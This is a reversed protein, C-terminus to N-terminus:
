RHKPAANSRTSLPRTEDEDETPVAEWGLAAAGLAPHQVTAREIRIAAIPALVRARFSAEARPLLWDGAATMMGGGLAIVSPNYATASWALAVGLMDGAENLIRSALPDGTYAARIIASTNLADDMLSTQDGCEIGERAAALIGRGSTYTEVCGHKGCGCMRGAPDIVVHGIEMACGYVGNVLRGDAVAGGGIGTGVALFLFDRAGRGVGYRWEGFAGANVDNQLVIPITEALGHAILAARLGDILPVDIWNLNVAALAVGRAPDVPGPCAVGIATIHQVGGAREAAALAARGIRAIVGPAGEASRTEITESALPRGDRDVAAIAVKTGGIDIGIAFESSM